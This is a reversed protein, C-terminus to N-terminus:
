SDHRVVLCAIQYPAVTVTVSTDSQETISDDLLDRELTFGRLDVSEVVTEATPNVLFWAQQDDLVRRRRLLAGTRDSTVGAEVLLKWMFDNTPGHIHATASLGSVTGLLVATGDGYTNRVGVM